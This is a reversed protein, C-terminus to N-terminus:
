TILKLILLDQDMSSVKTNNEKRTKVASKRIITIEEQM